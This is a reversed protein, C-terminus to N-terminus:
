AGWFGVPVTRLGAPHTHAAVDAQLEPVCERTGLRLNNRATM